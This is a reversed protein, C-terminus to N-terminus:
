LIGVQRHRRQHSAARELDGDGGVPDSRRQRPAEALLELVEEGRVADLEVGEDLLHSAEALVTLRGRPAVLEVVLRAPEDDFAADPNTLGLSALVSRGHPMIGAHAPEDIYTATHSLRGAGWGPGTPSRRM